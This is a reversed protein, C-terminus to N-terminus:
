RTPVLVLSAPRGPEVEAPTRQLMPLGFALTKGSGTKARGCVDRGALSDRITAEQIAFPESIGEAELAAVLDARLGLEAFSTM